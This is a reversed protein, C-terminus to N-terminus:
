EVTILDKLKEFKKAGIGKVNMIESISKFGGFKERYSVIRGATVEGIGPLEILESIYANNINLRFGAPLFSRTSRDNANELSDRLGSLKEVKIKEGFSDTFASRINRELQLNENGYGFHLNNAAGTFRIILGAIFVALLFFLLLLDQKTFGINRLFNLM